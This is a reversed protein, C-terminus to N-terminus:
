ITTKRKKVWHIINKGMFFLIFSLSIAGGTMKISSFTSSIAVGSASIEPFHNMLIIQSINEFIDSLTLFLPVMIYWKEKRVLAALLLSYGVGSIITYFFDVGLMKLYFKRGEEGLKQYLDAIYEFNYSFFQDPNKVNDSYRLFEPLYDIILLAQLAFGVTLLPLAIQYKGNKFFFRTLKKM